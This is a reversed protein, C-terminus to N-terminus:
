RAPCPAATCLRMRVVVLRNWPFRALAAVPTQHRFFRLFPNPRGPGPDQGFLSLGHGTQDRVVMGYRQAARALMLTLRPLHLSKLRLSPDLRLRAGEPLTDPPGFGDTRQAPWAFVGARAAPVNLALAHPIRRRELDRFLVVGAIVPLGSATAGWFLRAGPWSSRTYYGPSRSVHRVAGGWRAHWGDAERRAQWLEWLRDTSPQWITMHADLGAAAKAGPPIPVADLARQLTRRGPGNPNDLRVRVRAQSRRVRYLPTSAKGVAFWPGVGAATERTVEAVLGHVLASSGPDVPADAALPRNWVSSRAFLRAGFASTPFVAPLPALGLLAAWLACARKAGTPRMTESLLERARGDRWNKRSGVAIRPASSRYDCGDV